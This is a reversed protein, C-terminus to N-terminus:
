NGIREGEWVASGCVYMYTAVYMHLAVDDVHEDCVHMLVNDSYQLKILYLHTVM